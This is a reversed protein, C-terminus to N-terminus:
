RADLLSRVAPSRLLRRSARMDVLASRHLCMLRVYTRIRMGADTFFTLEKTALHRRNVRVSRDFDAGSYLNIMVIVIDRRIPHHGNALLTLTVTSLSLVCGSM